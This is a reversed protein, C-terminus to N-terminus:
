LIKVFLDTLIPDMRTRFEHAVLALAEPIASTRESVPKDLGANAASEGLGVGVAEGLAM